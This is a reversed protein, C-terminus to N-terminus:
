GRLATHIEDLREKLPLAIVALSGGDIHKGISTMVGGPPRPTSPAPARAADDGPAAALVVVSVIM